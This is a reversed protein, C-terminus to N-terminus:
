EFNHEDKMKELIQEATFPLSAGRSLAELYRNILILKEITKKEGELPANPKM